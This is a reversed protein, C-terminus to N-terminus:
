DAAFASVSAPNGTYLLPRFIKAHVHVDGGVNFKIQFNTGAVVQSTFCVATFTDYTACAADEVIAKCETFFQQEDIDPIKNDSVGGCMM